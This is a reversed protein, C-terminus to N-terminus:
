LINTLSLGIPFSPKGSIKIPIGGTAPDIELSIRLIFLSSHM